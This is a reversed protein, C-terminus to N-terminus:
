TIVRTHTDTHSTYRRTIKVQRRGAPEVADPDTEEQNKNKQDQENYSLLVSVLVPFIFTVEM